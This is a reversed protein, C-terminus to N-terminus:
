IHFTFSHNTFSMALMLQRVLTTEPRARPSTKLGDLTADLCLRRPPSVLTTYSGAFTFILVPKQYQVYQISM